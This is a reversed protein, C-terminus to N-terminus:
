KGISKRVGNEGKKRNKVKMGGPPTKAGKGQFNKRAHDRKSRGDTM